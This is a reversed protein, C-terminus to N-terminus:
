RSQRDRRHGEAEQGTQPKGRKGNAFITFRLKRAHPEFVGEVIADVALEAALKKIDRDPLDEDLGLREIRHTVRRTPVVELNSDDLADEMAMWLGTTDGDIQTLAVKTPRASAPLSVASVALAACILLRLPRPM